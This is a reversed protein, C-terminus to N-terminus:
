QQMKLTRIYKPYYDKILTDKAFIKEGDTAQKKMRKANDKTSWFVKIKTLGLKDIRERM